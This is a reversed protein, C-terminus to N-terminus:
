LVINFFCTSSLQRSQDAVICRFPQIIRVSFTRDGVLAAGREKNWTTRENFNFSNNIQIRLVPPMPFKQLWTIIKVNM